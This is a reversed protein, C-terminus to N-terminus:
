IPVDHTTDHREKEEQGENQGSWMYLADTHKYLTIIIPHGTHVAM